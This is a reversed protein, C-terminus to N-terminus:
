DIAEFPNNGAVATVECRSGGGSGHVTGDPDDSAKTTISCQVLTKPDGHLIASVSLQAGSTFNM